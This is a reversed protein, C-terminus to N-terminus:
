GRVKCLAHAGAADVSVGDKIITCTMNSGVTGPRFITITDGPAPVIGATSMTGLLIVVQGTIRRVQDGDLFEHTVKTPVGKCTYNTTTVGQGATPDSSNYVGATKKGLTADYLLGGLASAAIAKIDVGFLNPM